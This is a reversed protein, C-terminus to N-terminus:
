LDFYVVIETKTSFEEKRKFFKRNKSIRKKNQFCLSLFIFDKQKLVIKAFLISFGIKNFRPNQLFHSHQFPIIVIKRAVRLKRYEQAEASAFKEKQQIKSALSHM